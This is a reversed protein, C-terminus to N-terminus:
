GSQRGIKLAWVPRQHSVKGMRRREAPIEVVRQGIAAANVWTVRGYSPMYNTLLWRLSRVKVRVQSNLVGASRLGGVSPVLVSEFVFYWVIVDVYRAHM